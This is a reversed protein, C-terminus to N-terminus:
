NGLKCDIRLGNGFNNLTKSVWMCLCVCSSASLHTPPTFPHSHPGTAMHGNQLPIEMWRPTRHTHTHTHTTKKLSRWRIPHYISGLPSTAPYWCLKEFFLRFASSFVFSFGGPACCPCDALHICVL